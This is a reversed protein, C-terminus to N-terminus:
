RRIPIVTAGVSFTEHCHLCYYQRHGKDDLYPKSDTDLDVHLRASQQCDPCRYYKITHVDGSFFYDDQM